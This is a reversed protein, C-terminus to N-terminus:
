KTKPKNDTANLKNKKRCYDDCFRARQHRRNKVRGCNECKIKVM